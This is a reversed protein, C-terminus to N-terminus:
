KIHQFRFYAFQATM